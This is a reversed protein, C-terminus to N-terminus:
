EPLEVTSNEPNGCEYKVRLVQYSKVFSLNKKGGIPMTGNYKEGDVQYEYFLDPMKSLRKKISIVKGSTVISCTEIAKKSHRASYYGYGLLSVLLVFMVLGKISEKSM